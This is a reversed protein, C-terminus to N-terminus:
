FFFFMKYEGIFLHFRKWADRFSAPFYPPNKHTLSLSFFPPNNRGMLLDCHDEAGTRGLRHIGQVSRRDTYMGITPMLGATAAPTSSTNFPQSAMLSMSNPKMTSLYRKLGPLFGNVLHSKEPLYIGQNRTINMIMGMPVIMRNVMLVPRGHAEHPETSDLNNGQKVETHGTGASVIQQGQGDRVVEILTVKNKGPGTQSLAEAGERNHEQSRDHNGSGGTIGARRNHERNETDDQRQDGRDKDLSRFTMFTVGSCCSFYVTLSISFTSPLIGPSTISSTPVSSQPIKRCRRNRDTRPMSCKSSAFGLM